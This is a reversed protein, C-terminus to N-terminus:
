SRLSPWLAAHEVGCGPCNTGYEIAAHIAEDRHWRCVPRRSEAPGILYEPEDVCGDEWDNSDACTWGERRNDIRQPDLEELAEIYTAM